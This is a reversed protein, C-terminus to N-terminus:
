RWWILKFSWGSIGSSKRKLLLDAYWVRDFTKKYWNKVSVFDATPRPSRFGNQSDSFIDCKNLYAVLGNDAFEKLSKVLWLFFVLVTTYKQWLIGWCDPLCSKKHCMNFLEALIYSILIGDELSLFVVNTELLTLRVEHPSPGEKAKTPWQELSPTVIFIGFSTSIKHCEGVKCRM